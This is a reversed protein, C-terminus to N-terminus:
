DIRKRSNPKTNKKQENLKSSLIKCQKKLVTKTPSEMAFIRDSLKSPSSDTSSSTFTIRPLHLKHLDTTLNDDDSFSSLNETFIKPVADKRLLNRKDNKIIDEPCFHKECILKNKLDKVDMLAIKINGSNKKWEEAIKCYKVPFKFFSINKHVRNSKFCNNYICIHNATTNM